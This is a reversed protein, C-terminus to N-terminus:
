EIKEYQFNSRISKFHYSGLSQANMLEDHIRKPVGFYQYVNGDTFEVELIKDQNDYGVSKLNASSVIKRVMKLAGKVFKM